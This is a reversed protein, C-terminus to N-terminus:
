LATCCSAGTWIKGPSARKKVIQGPFYIINGLAYKPLTKQKNTQQNTKSTKEHKKTTTTTKLLADLWDYILSM